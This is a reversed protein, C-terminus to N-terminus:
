EREVATHRCSNLGETVKNGSSRLCIKLYNEPIPKEPLDESETTCHRHPKGRCFLIGKQRMNTQVGNVVWGALEGRAFPFNPGLCDISGKWCPLKMQRVTANRKQRKQTATTNNM